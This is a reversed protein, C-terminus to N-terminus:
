VYSAAINVAVIAGATWLAGNLGWSILQGLAMAGDRWSVLRGIGSGLWEGLDLVYYLESIGSVRILAEGESTPDIM